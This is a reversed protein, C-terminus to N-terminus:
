RYRRRTLTILGLRQYIKVTEIAHHGLRLTLTDGQAEVPGGKEEEIINCRVARFRRGAEFSGKSSPVFTFTADHHAHLSFLNREGDCVVSDQVVDVTQVVSLGNAYDAGM